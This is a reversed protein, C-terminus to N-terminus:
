PGVHDMHCKQGCSFMSLLYILHAVMRMWKFHLSRLGFPFESHTQLEFKLPFSPPLYSTEESTSPFGAYDAIEKICYWDSFETLLACAPSTSCHEYHAKGLTGSSSSACYINSHAFGRQGGWIWWHKVGMRWLAVIHQMHSAKCNATKHWHM